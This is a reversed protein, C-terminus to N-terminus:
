RTGAFDVEEAVFARLGTGQPLDVEEGPRFLGLPWKLCAPRSYAVDGSLGTLKVPMLDGQLRDLRITISGSRAPAMAKRVSVIRGTATDGSKAFIVDGAKLDGCLIFHVTDGPKATRSNLGDAFVLWLPTGKTLSASVVSPGPSAVDAATSWPAPFLFLLVLALVAAPRGSRLTRLSRAERSDRHHSSM